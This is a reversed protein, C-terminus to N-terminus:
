PQSLSYLARRIGLLTRCICCCGWRLLSLWHKHTNRHNCWLLVDWVECASDLWHALLVSIQYLATQDSSRVGHRLSTKQVAALQEVATIQVEWWIHNSRYFWSSQSLHAFYCTHPLFLHMRAKPASIQPFSAVQFFCTYIPTYYSFPDVPHAISDHVPDFQSLISVPPSSKHISYHIKPNRLIRPIEQSTSFRNASWSPSQQM